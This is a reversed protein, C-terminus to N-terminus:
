EPLDRPRRAQFAALLSTVFPSRIKCLAELENVVHRQEGLDIMSSKQM